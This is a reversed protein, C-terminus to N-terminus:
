KTSQKSFIGPYEYKVKRVDSISHVKLKNAIINKDQEALLARLETLKQLRFPKNSPEEYAKEFQQELENNIPVVKDKHPSPDYCLIIKTLIIDDQPHHIILLSQEDFSLLQVLNNDWIKVIGEALTNNRLLCKVRDGEKPM